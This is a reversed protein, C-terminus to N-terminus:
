EVGVEGWQWSAPLNGGVHVANFMTVSFDIDGTIKAVEMMLISDAYLKYLQSGGLYYRVDHWYCAPYISKGRWTDPCGGSCGDSVMRKTPMGFELREVIDNQGHDKALQLLQTSDIIVGKGPLDGAYTCSSCLMMIAIAITTINKMKDSM